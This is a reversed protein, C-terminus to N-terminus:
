FYNSTPSGLSYKLLSEQVHYGILLSLCVMGNKSNIRTRWAFTGSKLLSFKVPFTLLDGQEALQISVIWAEPPQDLALNRALM